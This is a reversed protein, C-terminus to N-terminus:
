ASAGLVEDAPLPHFAVDTALHVVETPVGGSRCMDYLTSALARDEPTPGGSGPRCLLLAVRGEPAFEDLLSRWLWVANGAAQEDFHDPVDEVESMLPLPVGDAGVLMFWLRRDRWGLPKILTRWAHEVDAQTRLVPAFPQFSDTM